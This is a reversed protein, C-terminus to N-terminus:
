KNVLFAEFRRRFVFVLFLEMTQQTKRPFISRKERSPSSFMDKFIEEGSEAISLIREKHPKKNAKLNFVM